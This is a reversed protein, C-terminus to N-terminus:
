NSEKREIIHLMEVARNTYTEFDRVWNFGAQRKEEREFANLLFYDIKEKLSPLNQPAYHGVGVTDIGEVHPHLLFGGRGRTEYYRDSVYKPRGGFCSDGVVIKASAMLTNLDDGRMVGLGDNGWHGFNDGYESSLFEVLQKRFPYEKHYGKSGVFVIEHPFIVPDPAALYCDREVVGPKLFFWKLHLKNYLEVAEPSGDAMFQFETFWTAEQGVDNVRDLWAWRDLHVSATPVGAEKCEAFFEKLGPIEWGHTHSYILVDYSPSGIPDSYHPDRLHRRLEDVTTRSEQFKIVEYGLKEFSWARDNETSFPPIFNGIFGIRKIQQM